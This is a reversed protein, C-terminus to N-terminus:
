FLNKLIMIMFIFEKYYDNKENNQSFTNFTILLNDKKIEFKLKNKEKKYLSFSYSYTNKFQHCFNLFKNNDLTCIIKGEIKQLKQVSKNKIQYLYIYPTNTAIGIIINNKRSKIEFIENFIMKKNSEEQHIENSKIFGHNYIEVKNDYLLITNQNKLFVINKIVNGEGFKIKSILESIQEM